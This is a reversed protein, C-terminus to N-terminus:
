KTELKPLAWTLRQRVMEDLRSDQALKAMEPGVARANLQVLMDVLAIQVLPSEQGAISAAMAKAVEPEAAFKQLADVASLRVNVNSDHNM